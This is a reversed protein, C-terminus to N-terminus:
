EWMINITGTDFTDTGNVTTIRLRDLVGGLTIATAGGGGGGDNGEVTVSGVWSNSGLTAFTAIGQFNRVAASTNVTVLGSTFAAASIGSTSHVWASGVYGSTSISGSGIQVQIPSTGSLSVGSFMVTIRKVWSPIGTFDVSTGSATVATGLMIAGSNDQVGNSGSLVLAM